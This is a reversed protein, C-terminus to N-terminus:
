KILARAAKNEIIFSLIFQRLGDLDFVNGLGSKSIGVLVDNAIILSIEYNQNQRSKFKKDELVSLIVSEVTKIDSQKLHGRRSASGGKIARSRIEPSIGSYIQELYGIFKEARLCEASYDDDMGERLCRYASAMSFRVVHILDKERRSSRGPREARASLENLYLDFNDIEDIEREAVDLMSQMYESYMGVGDFYRPYRDLVARARHCLADFREYSEKQFENVENEAVRRRQEHVWNNLISLSSCESMHLDDDDLKAVEDWAERISIWKFGAADIDGGVYKMLFNVLTGGEVFILHLPIFIFEANICFDEALRSHVLKTPACDPNFGWRLFLNESYNVEKSILVEFSDNTILVGYHAAKPVALKM